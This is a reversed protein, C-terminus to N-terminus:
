GLSKTHQEVHRQIVGAQVPTIERAEGLLGIQRRAEDVIALNNHHPATNNGREDHPCFRYRILPFAQVAVVITGACRHQQQLHRGLVGM